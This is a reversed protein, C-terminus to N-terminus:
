YSAIPTDSPLNFQEPPPGEIFPVNNWNSLQLRVAAAGASPDSTSFEMRELEFSDQTIWIDLQGSGLAQVVQLSSLNSNLASQSVSVRIHYAPGSPEQETGVLVPSSGSDNAVALMQTVVYLPGSSLAPNFPLTSDDELQYVTQGYGRYYAYPDIVILEGSVGPIGPAGGIVHARKNAFDVDGDAVSGTLAVPM